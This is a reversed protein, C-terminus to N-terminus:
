PVQDGVLLFLSVFASLTYIIIYIQHNWINGLNGHVTGPEEIIASSQNECLDNFVERIKKIYIINEIM